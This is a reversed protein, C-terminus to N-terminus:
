NPGHIQAGRATEVAVIAANPVIAGSPDSVTGIIERPAVGQAKAAPNVFLLCALWLLRESCFYIEYTRRM